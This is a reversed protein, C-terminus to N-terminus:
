FRTALNESVTKPFTIPSHDTQASKRDLPDLPGLAHRDLITRAAHADAEFRLYHMSRSARGPYPDAQFTDNSYFHDQLCSQLNQIGQPVSCGPRPREVLNLALIAYGIRVAQQLFATLVRGLITDLHANTVSHFSDYVIVGIDPFLDQELIDRMDGYVWKHCADEGYIAKNNALIARARQELFPAPTTKDTPDPYNIGIYPAGHPRLAQRDELLACTRDNDGCLEAWAARLYGGRHWLLPQAMVAQLTAERTAQKYPDNERFTHKDFTM